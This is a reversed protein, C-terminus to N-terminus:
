GGVRRVQTSGDSLLHAVSLVPRPTPDLTPDVSLVVQQGSDPSGTVAAFWGPGQLREVYLGADDVLKIEVVVPDDGRDSLQARDSLRARAGAAAALGRGTSLAARLATSLM